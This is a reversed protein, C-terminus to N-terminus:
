ASPVRGRSAIPREPPPSRRWCRRVRARMRDSSRSPPTPSNPHWARRPRSSRSRTSARRSALLTSCRRRASRQAAAELPVGNPLEELRAEGHSVVELSARERSTLYTVIRARRLVPRTLALDLPVALPHSTEDIMGHTQVVIPVARRLAILASPLTVLDRAAHVHVVDFERAHRHVASWLEPSGLGAFGTRPLLTRAPFLRVPVGEIETPVNGEFGRQTGALVVQHGRDQLARLQNVAVRTPGGYEGSPSLLTVVGLIKVRDAGGPRPRIRAPRPRRFGAARGIHGAGHRRRGCGPGGERRAPGDGAGRDVGRGRDHDARQRLEFTPSRRDHSGTCLFVGQSVCVDDGITVPELNLIWAREGIWSDDGITLKWPWHVRVGSRLNVGQGIRAGFARLVRVRVKPPVFWPMVLLSSALQWAAQWAIGRGKDYGAGTFGALSRRGGMPSMRAVRSKRLGAAIIVRVCRASRESSDRDIVGDLSPRTVPGISQSRHPHAAREPEAVIQGVEALYEPLEGSSERVGGDEHSLAVRELSVRLKRESRVQAEPHASAVAPHPPERVRAVKAHRRRSCDPPHQPTGGIDDDDDLESGCCEDRGGRRVEPSTPHHRQDFGLRREAAARLASEGRRHLPDERTPRVDHQHAVLPGRPVRPLAQADAGSPQVDPRVERGLRRLIRRRSEVVAARHAEQEQVAKLAPLPKVEEDRCEGDEGLVSALPRQIDDPVSRLARREFSLDDLQPQDLPDAEVPSSRVLLHSRVVSARM